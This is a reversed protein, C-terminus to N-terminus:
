HVVEDGLPDHADLWKRVLAFAEGREADDTRIQELNMIATGAFQMGDQPPGLVRGPNDKWQDDVEDEAPEQPESVVRRTAPREKGDLGTRTSSPSDGLQAAPRADDVMHNSVGCMAAVARSSLKPFEALAIEVCRRKDANSRRHGHLANAGLACKLAEARGGPHLNVAISEKELSRAALTRHWGDGIWCKTTTGFVDVPPFADGEVMREAYENVVGYDIAARCQISTDLEISTLKMKKMDLLLM